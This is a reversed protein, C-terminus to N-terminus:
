VKLSVKFRSLMETAGIILFAFLISKLIGLWGVFFFVSHSQFISSVIPSVFGALLYCTLAHKGAPMIPASWRHFQFIDAMLYLLAFGSFGIGIAFSTWSPTALAKSIGAFPRLLFGSSLFVFALMLVLLPFTFEGSRNRLHMLWCSLTMGSAVIAMNSASFIFRLWIRLFDTFLFETMNIGYLILCFIIMAWLRNGAWMFFLACFLYAWGILGLIGWYHPHLWEPKDTSGGKFCIALILILIIGSLRLLWVPMGAFTKKEYRNWILFFSFILCMRWLTVWIHPVDPHFFRSNILFFGMIILALARKSINLLVQTRSACLKLQNVIAFPISLGVIFLFAPFVMDSFGLRDALAPTHGLWFYYSNHTSLDNLFIMLMMTIARFIDISIVRSQM